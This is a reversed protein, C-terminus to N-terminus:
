TKTFCACFCNGEKFNETNQLIENEDYTYISESLIPKLFKEIIEEVFGKNNGYLLFFSYKNLKIKKLEFTKLIM